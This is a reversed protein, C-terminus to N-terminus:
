GRRDLHHLRCWATFRAWDGAYARITNAAGRLGSEVYRSTPGVLHAPLQAEAPLPLALDSSNEM